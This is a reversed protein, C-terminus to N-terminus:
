PAFDEAATRAHGSMVREAEDADRRRIAELLQRHEDYRDGNTRGTIVREKLSSVRQQFSFANITSLMRLLVANGCANEAEAHFARLELLLLEATEAPYADGAAIAARMRERLRDAEDLHREMRGVAADTRNMAALRVATSKLSAEILALEYSSTDRSDFVVTSRTGRREVLGEQELRRIAERVPTPSVSLMAALGRETIKEGPPLEGSTIAARIADYAQDALSPSSLEQLSPGGM